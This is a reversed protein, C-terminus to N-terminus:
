IMQRTVTKEDTDFIAWGPKNGMRTIAGPNVLLTNDVTDFRFQHTHGHLCLDYESTKAKEEAPQPYHHMFIRLGKREIDCVEGHFIVNDTEEAKTWIKEIQFENNGLIMHVPGSFGALTNVGEPRVLDGVFFAAECGLESAKKLGAELGNWNNHSDSLLALKMVSM